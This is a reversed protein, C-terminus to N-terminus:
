YAHTTGPGVMCWYAGGSKPEQHTHSTVVLGCHRLPCYGPASLTLLHIDIFM